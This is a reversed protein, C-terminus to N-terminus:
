VPNQTVSPPKSKRGPLFLAALLVIGACVALLMYQTNFGFSNRHGWAILPLILAGLGLSLVYEVSFARARWNPAVFHGLLWSTIPVEAFMLLVLVMAIPIVAGGQTNAILVLMAIQPILLGVLIPRAGYKDLLDGVPLQAFAAVGFVLAAYGGVQSLDIDSFLLREDFLKPLTMTVANFVAGGFIASVIVVAFVRMQNRRSVAAFADSTKKNVNDTLGESRFNQLAYFVGIAIAIVGPVIFASRWGFQATLLGTVLAAGALGMNGFVGNVALARGPREALEIVLSMGVPHYIAAFAGLFALGTAIGFAGPVLGTFISSAGCGFFFITILIRRDIHDGLWGAPLTAVAFAVYMSTGMALAEGYILNWDSEIAIVATPFVLLFFHDFFHALNLYMLGTKRSM